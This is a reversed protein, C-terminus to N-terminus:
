LIQGVIIDLMRRTLDTTPAKERFAVALRQREAAVDRERALHQDIYVGLRDLVSPDSKEALEVLWNEFPQASSINM